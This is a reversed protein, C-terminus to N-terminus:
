LDGFPNDLSFDIFDPKKLEFAANDEFPTNLIEPMYPDAITYPDDLGIVVTVIGEAGSTDGSISTGGDLSEFEGAPYSINALGYLDSSLTRPARVIEARIIVGDETTLTVKENKIFTGAVISIRVNTIDAWRSELDDIAAVGTDFDQSEYRFLECRLQYTPLHNLRYFQEQDEVFRIEFLSKSFPLYILDGEYPRDRTPDINNLDNQVLTKWRKVAVVLTCTDAVTVGFKSLFDEGGFGDAELLYMEVAYSKDFKSLIEENLITDVGAINRPLYLADFGYMKISEIILDEYLGQEGSLGNNFSNVYQNTAM